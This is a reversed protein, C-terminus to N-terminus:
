APVGEDDDDDDDDSMDFAEDPALITTVKVLQYVTNEELGEVDCGAPVVVYAGGDHHLMITDVPEDIEEAWSLDPGITVELADHELNYKLTAAM